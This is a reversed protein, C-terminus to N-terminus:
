GTPARAPTLTPWAPSGAYGCQRPQGPPPKARRRARPAPRLRPRTRRGDVFVASCSLPAFRWILRPAPKPVACALDASSSASTSGAHREQSQRRTRSGPTQQGRLCRDGRKPAGAAGGAATNKRSSSGSSGACTPKRRRAAASGAGGNRPASVRLLGGSALADVAAVLNQRLHMSIRETGPCCDRGSRLTMRQFCTGTVVPMGEGFLFGAPSCRLWELGTRGFQPLLAVGRRTPGGRGTSRDRGSAQSGCVAPSGPTPASCPPVAIVTLGDV